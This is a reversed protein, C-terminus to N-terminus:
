RPIAAPDIAALSDLAERALKQVQVDEDELALRSLLPVHSASGLHALGIVANRVVAREGEWDLDSVERVYSRDAMRALLDLGSDDGMRALSLAGNWRVDVVPDRLVARLAGLAAPGGIKGAAYAAVKRMGPDPDELMRVVSGSLGHEVSGIESLAKLACIRTPVDEELDLARELVPIAEPDGLALLTLALFRRLRPDAARDGEVAHDFSRIVERSFGPPLEDRKEMAVASLAYAAQWRRTESNGPRLEYLLEVPSQATTTIVSILGILGVGVTVVLAPILFWRVLPTLGWLRTEKGSPSEREGNSSRAM